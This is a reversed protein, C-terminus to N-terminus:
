RIRKVKISKPKAQEVKPIRLTLIGNEFAADAREADVGDPLTVSRSFAGYQCEQCLFSGEDEEQTAYVEGKITLTDGTVSVDIDEPQVGPVSAKIVVHDATEYLDLPVMGAWGTSLGTESPRFFSRDFLRDMADRMSILDNFPEWRTLGPM